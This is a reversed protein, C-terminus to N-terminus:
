GNNEECHRRLRDDMKEMQMKLDSQNSLLNDIKVVIVKLDGDGDNLRQDIVAIKGTNVGVQKGMDSVKQRLRGYAVSGTVIAVGLTSLATVSEWSPM